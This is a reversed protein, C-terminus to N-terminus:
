DICDVSWAVLRLGGGFQQSAEFTGKAGITKAYKGSGHITEWTRDSGSIEWTITWSDGEKDVAYCAGNGWGTGDPMATWLGSCNQWVTKQAAAPTLRTNSGVSETYYTTQGDKVGAIKMPADFVRSGIGSCEEASISFTTGLFIAGAFLAIKKM